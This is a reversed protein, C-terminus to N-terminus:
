ISCGTKRHDTMVATQRIYLEKRIGPLFVKKDAHDMREIEHADRGTDKRVVHLANNDATIRFSMRDPLVVIFSEHFQDAELRLQAFRPM